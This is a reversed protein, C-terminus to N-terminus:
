VGPDNHREKRTSHCQSNRAVELYQLMEAIRHDWTHHALVEQRGARAIREREKDHDLYYEILELAEPISHFWVLHKRNEFVEELGPFYRTLHFAGCAMSNLPRRWSTYMYVQNTNYGLTIKAASCAEAFQDNNVFGHLHVTPLGSLEEWGQGFLHLHIKESAIAEILQWRGAYGQGTAEAHDSTNNAMFVVDFERAIERPYFVEPDTGVWWFGIHKIGRDHHKQILAKDKHYLLTYDAYRGIDVVWPQPEWRFDGYFHIVKANTKKKIRRITAGSISESKGLHILDPGFGIAAQELLRNMLFV